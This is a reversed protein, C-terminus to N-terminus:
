RRGLVVRHGPDQGPDPRLRGWGPRLELEVRSACHRPLFAVSQADLLVPVVLPRAVGAWDLVGEGERKM